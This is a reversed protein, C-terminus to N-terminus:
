APFRTLNVGSWPSSVSRQHDNIFCSSRISVHTGTSTVRASRPSSSPHRGCLLTRTHGGNGLGCSRIRKPEEVHNVTDVEVAARLPPLLSHSLEGPEADGVSDLADRPHCVRVWTFPAPEAM